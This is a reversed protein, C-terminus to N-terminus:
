FVLEKQLLKLSNIKLINRSYSVVKKRKLKNLQRNVTERSMGTQAALHYQTFPVIINNQGFKKQKNKINNLLVAILRIYSDGALISKIKLNLKRKEELTQILLEYMAETNKHLFLNFEKRSCRRLKAKTLTEFYYSNTKNLFGWTKPFIEGRTFLRMIIENGDETILYQKVKGQSVFYIGRSSDDARVVIEGKKYSIEKFKDFFGQILKTEKSKPMM